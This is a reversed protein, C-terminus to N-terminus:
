FLMPQIKPSIWLCEIRGKENQATTSRKVMRFDKYLKAYLENYYGSIIVMGEVAHIQESLETHLQIDTKKDEEMGKKKGVEGGMEFAYLKSGKSRTDLMYPPDCYFLTDPRDYINFLQEAPRNELVVNKLRKHFQPIFDSYRWWENASTVATEKNKLGRFGSNERTVGNSGISAFSRFIIRRAMEVPDDVREYAKRYETYAFPTNQLLKQLKESQEPNRLVRFVGVIDDNIDNYIEGRSPAKAMLVSGGGGHTDVYLGHPCFHSVVWKAIKFKGGPYRMIPRRNASPSIRNKPYNRTM